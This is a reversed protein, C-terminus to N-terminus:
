GLSSRDVLDKSETPIFSTVPVALVTMLDAITLGIMFYHQIQLGTMKKFTMLVLVNNILIAIAIIIPLLASAAPLSPSHLTWVSSNMEKM